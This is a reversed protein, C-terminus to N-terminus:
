RGKPQEGKLFMVYTCPLLTFSNWARITYVMWDPEWHTRYRIIMPQLHPCKRNPSLTGTGLHTSWPRFHPKQAPMTNAIQSSPIRKLHPLANPAGSCAGVSNRHSSAVPMWHWALSYASAITCNSLHIPFTPSSASATSLAIFNHTAETVQRHLLSAIASTPIGEGTRWTKM